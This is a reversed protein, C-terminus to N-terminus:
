CSALQRVEAESVGEVYVQKDRGRAGSTISVQRISVGLQKALFKTLMKNAKGDLPPSQVRIRLQEGHLGTLETKSANPVVRLSLTVGQADSRIWRESSDAM